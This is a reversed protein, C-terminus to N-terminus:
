KHSNLQALTNQIAILADQPNDIHLVANEMPCPGDNTRNCIGPVLAGYEVPINRSELVELAPASIIGAYLARIDLLCYLYAAAKGVVKDAAAFGEVSTSGELLDLLPRVGRRNDTLIVDNGCLVCTSGTKNLLMKAQDLCGCDM